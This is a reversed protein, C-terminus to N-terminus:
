EDGPAARPTCRAGLASGISSALAPCLQECCFVTTTAYHQSLGSNGQRVTAIGAAGSGGTRTIALAGGQSRPQDTLRSPLPLPPM